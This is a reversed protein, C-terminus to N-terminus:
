MKLGCVPCFKAGAKFTTGCKPCETKPLLSGGCESCFKGGDNEAGCSPCLLVAHAKLDLGETLDQTRLKEGAQDITIQAQMASIERQAMPACEVCLGREKNFCIEGCVWQGCRKCQVFLPRIETVADRIAADHGPGQVLDALHDAGRSANGMFGGLMSGAGRLLGTAMGAKSAKWTSMYGNGCRECNFKFQYGSETSLDEYNDTFEINPVSQRRSLDM